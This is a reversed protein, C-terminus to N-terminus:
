PTIKNIEFQGDSIPSDTIRVYMSPGTSTLKLEKFEGNGTGNLVGQLKTFIGNEDALGGGNVRTGTLNGTIGNSNVNNFTGVYKQTPDYVMATFNTGSPANIVPISSSETPSSPMQKIIQDIEVHYVSISGHETTVYITYVGNEHVTFETDFVQVNDEMFIYDSYNRYGKIWKTQISGVEIDVSEVRVIVDQNTLGYNFQFQLEPRFDFAGLDTKEGHFTRLRIDLDNNSSNRSLEIGANIAISRATLRYDGATTPASSAPISNRFQPDGDINNGGDTGFHNSWNTGSGGSGGILSSSIKTKPFQISLNDAENNYSVSANGWLISNQILLEAGMGFVGGGHGETRNGSITVNTLTVRSVDDDYIYIGSGSNYSYNGSILTDYVKMESKNNYIGGGGRDAMNGKIFSGILNVGNSNENAMAAGNNFSRNEEFITNILLPSSSNNYMGGGWIATNNTFTINRLIPSSGRNFIGGGSNHPYVNGDAYGGTITVGDLIATKDLNLGNHLFVHYANEQFRDSTEMSDNNEFDGTLITKNVLPDRVSRGMNEEPHAPFGGYIWVGNKMQFHRTRPDSGDQNGTPVYTGAAIWVQDGSQAQTLATHLDGLANDWSMGSGTANQKVYIIKGSNAAVKNAMPMPLVFGLIILTILLIQLQKISLLRNM